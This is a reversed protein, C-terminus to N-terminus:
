RRPSANSPLLPARRGTSAKLEDDTLTEEGPKPKEPPKAETEVKGQEGELNDTVPKEVPKELPKDTATETPKAQETPKPKVPKATKM